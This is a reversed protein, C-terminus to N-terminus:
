KIKLTTTTKPALRRKEAIDVDPDREFSRVKFPPRFEQRQHIVENLRSLLLLPM